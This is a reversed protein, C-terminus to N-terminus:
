LLIKITAKSRLQRLWEEFKANIKKRYIEDRLKEKTADDLSWQAKSAHSYQFMQLGLPTEVVQSIEGPKLKQIVARVFPALDQESFAGLLGGDAETAPDAIQRAAEEFSAGAQILKRAAELKAKAKAITEPQTDAPQVYIHRILLKNENAENQKADKKAYDMLEEDTIVIKSKVQFRILKSREIQSKIEDKYQEFSIGDQELKSKLQEVSIQNASTLKNLYDNIEETDVSIGLRKIEDAALYEDVVQPLLQTLAERKSAEDISRKNKIEYQKFYPEAKRELESLTIVQNNVIAVVKDVVAAEGSVSIFCLLLFSLITAFIGM